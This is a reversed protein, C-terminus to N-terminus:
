KKPPAAKGPPSPLIEQRHGLWYIIDCYCSRRQQFVEFSSRLGALLIFLGAVCFFLPWGSVPVFFSAVALGAASLLVGGGVKIQLRARWTMSDLAAPAMHMDNPGRPVVADIRDPIWDGPSCLWQSGVGLRRLRISMSRMSAQGAAVACALGITVAALGSLLTAALMYNVGMALALVAVMLCLYCQAVLQNHIVPLMREDIGLREMAQEFSEIRRTTAAEVTRRRLEDVGGRVVKAGDEGVRYASRMGGLLSAHKGLPEDAGDPPTKEQPKKRGFLM